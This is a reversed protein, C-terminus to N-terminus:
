RLRKIQFYIYSALIQVYLLAQCKITQVLFKMLESHDSDVDSRIPVDQIQIQISFSKFVTYSM